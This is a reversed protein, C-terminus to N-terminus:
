ADWNFEKGCLPVFMLKTSGITLVDHSNLEIQGIVPRNNVRVVSKANQPGFFFIREQPDYVVVAHRDRDIRNDGAISIDMSPDRGIFNYDTHIRYDTGKAPGDICVLWGTVPSFGPIGNMSAPMTADYDEVGFNGGNGGSFSSSDIPSTAAKTENDWSFTNNPGGFGTAQAVPETKGYGMSGYGGVPETAGYNMTGRGGVPETAGFGEVPQTADGFMQNTGSAAAAEAACQPCTNTLAPDYYHGKPCKVYNAM